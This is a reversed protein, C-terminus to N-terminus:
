QLDERARATEDSDQRTHAMSLALVYVPVNDSALEAGGNIYLVHWEPLFRDPSCM